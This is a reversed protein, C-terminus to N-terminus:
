TFRTTRHVLTPMVYRSVATYLEFGLVDDVLVFGSGQFELRSVKYVRIGTVWFSFFRLIM